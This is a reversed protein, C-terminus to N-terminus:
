CAYALLRFPRLLNDPVTYYLTRSDGSWEMSTVGKTTHHSLLQGTNLDKVFLTFLEDGVLDVTFALLQHDSSVKFM